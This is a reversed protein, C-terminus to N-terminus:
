MSNSGVESPGKGIYRDYMYLLFEGLFVFVGYLFMYKIQQKFFKGWALCNKFSHLMQLQLFLEFIKRLFFFAGRKFTTANPIDSIAKLLWFIWVFAYVYMVMAYKGPDACTNTDVFIGRKEMSKQFNVIQETFIPFNIQDAQRQM